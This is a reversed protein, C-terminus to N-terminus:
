GHRRFYWRVSHAYDSKEGGHDRGDLVLVGICARWGTEPSPDAPRWDARNLLASTMM